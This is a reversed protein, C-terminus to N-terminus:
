LWSDFCARYLQSVPCFDQSVLVTCLYMNQEKIWSVLCLAVFCYRGCKYAEKKSGGHIPVLAQCIPTYSYLGVEILQSPFLLPLLPAGVRVPRSRASRSVFVVLTLEFMHSGIRDQFMMIKIMMIIVIPSNTFDDRSDLIHNVTSIIMGGM